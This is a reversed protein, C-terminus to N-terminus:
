KSASSTQLYESDNKNEQEFFGAASLDENLTQWHIAYGNIIEFNKREETSAKLLLPFNKIPLSAQREDQLKVFIDSDTLWVTVANYEFFNM